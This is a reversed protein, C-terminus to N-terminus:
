KWETALSTTTTQSSWDAFFSSVNHKLVYPKRKVICNTSRSFVSLIIVTNRETVISDAPSHISGANKTLCATLCCVHCNWPLTTGHVHSLYCLNMLLAQAIRTKLKRTRLRRDQREPFCARPTAPLLIALSLITQLAELWSLNALVSSLSKAWYMSIRSWASRLHSWM